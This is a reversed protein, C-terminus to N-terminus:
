RQSWLHQNLNKFELLMREYHVAARLMLAAHSPVAKELNWWPRDLDMRKTEHNQTEESVTAGM